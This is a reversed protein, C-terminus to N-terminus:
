VTATRHIAIRTAAIAALPLSRGVVSFFLRVNKVRSPHTLV